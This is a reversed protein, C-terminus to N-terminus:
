PIIRTSMNSVMNSTGARTVPCLGGFSFRTATSVVLPPPAAITTSLSPASPTSRIEGGSLTVSHRRGIPIRTPLAGKISEAVFFEAFLALGYLVLLMFLAATALRHRAFRRRILQWQSLTEIASENEAEVVRPEREDTM